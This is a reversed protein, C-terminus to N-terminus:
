AATGLRDWLVACDRGRAKAAMLARDARALLREVDQSGPPATSTTTAVGASVTVRATGGGAVEPLLVPREAVARRLADAWAIGDSATTAPLVALFEEGGMRALFAGPPLVAQMRRAVRRLVADGAAHGLRDNIRKFHDVDVAIVVDDCDRAASGSRLLETLRALGYRRNPIGTLPDSWAFRQDRAAQQRRGDATRKRTLQLSLRLAVEEPSTILDTPMVDGAGLDLAMPMLQRAEPAVMVVFAADRSGSRSKLEAMLNLGEGPASLDAPLLYLDSGAGAAAQALATAPDSIRLVAAVRDRLARQWAMAVAPEHGILTMTGIRQAGAFVAHPEAMGQPQHLMRAAGVEAHVVAAPDTGAACDRLLLRIRALLVHEDVPRDVTATAGSRLARLRDAGDAVVLIPVAGSSEAALRACVVPASIEGAPGGVVVIDPTNRRMVAVAEDLSRAATVDYCAASLRVKLTIRNTAAGDVILVKGSM